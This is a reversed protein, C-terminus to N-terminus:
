TDRLVPILAAFHNTAWGAVFLVAIVVRLQRSM